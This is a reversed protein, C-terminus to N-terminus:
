KPHRQNNGHGEILSLSFRWCSLGPLIDFPGEPLFIPDMGGSFSDLGAWNSVSLPPCVSRLPLYNYVDALALQLFM